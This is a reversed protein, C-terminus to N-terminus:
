YESLDVGKSLFYAEIDDLAKRGADYLKQLEPDETKAGYMQLYYSLGENAIKAAEQEYDQLEM